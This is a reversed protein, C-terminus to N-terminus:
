GGFMVFKQSINVIAFLVLTSETYLLYMYNGEFGDELGNGNIAAPSYVELSGDDTILTMTLSEEPLVAGTVGSPLEGLQILLDALEQSNEVLIENDIVWQTLEIMPDVILPDTIPQGITDETISATFSVQPIAPSFECFTALADVISIQYTKNARVEFKQSWQLDKPLTVTTPTSGSTFQILYENVIGETPAQLNITLTEIEDWVNLTNPAITVESETQKIMEYCANGSGGKIVVKNTKPPTVPHIAISAMKIFKITLLTLRSIKYLM